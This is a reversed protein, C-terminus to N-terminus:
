PVGCTPSFPAPPPYWSCWAPGLDCPECSWACTGGCCACLGEVQANVAIVGDLDDTCPMGFRADVDFGTPFPTPALCAEAVDVPAAVAVVDAACGTINLVFAAGAVVSLVILMFRTFPRPATMVDDDNRTAARLMSIVNLALFVETVILLAPKM